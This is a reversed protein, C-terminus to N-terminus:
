SQAEVCAAAADFTAVVADASPAVYNNWDAIRFGTNTDDVKKRPTVHRALEDRAACGLKSNELYTGPPLLKEEWLAVEIAGLACVSGLPYSSGGNSQRVFKAWGKERVIQGSRRLLEAVTM